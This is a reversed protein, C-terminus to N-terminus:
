DTKENLLWDRYIANISVEEQNENYYYLEALIVGMGKTNDINTFVRVDELNLFFQSLKENAYNIKDIYNPEKNSIDTDIGALRLRCVRSLEFGIDLTCVVTPGVQVDHMFLIEYNSTNM